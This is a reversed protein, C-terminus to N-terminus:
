AAGQVPVSNSAQQMGTLTQALRSQPTGQSPISQRTYNRTTSSPKVSTSAPTDESETAVTFKVCDKLAPMNLMTSLHEVFQAFDVQGGQAMM